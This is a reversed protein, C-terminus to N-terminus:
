YFSMVFLSASVFYITDLENWKPGNTEVVLDYGNILGKLVTADNAGNVTIGTLKADYLEVLKSGLLDKIAQITQQYPDSGGSTDRRLMKNAITIAANM